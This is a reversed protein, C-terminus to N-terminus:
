QFLAAAQERVWECTIGAAGGDASAGGDVAQPAGAIRVMVFSSNCLTPDAGTTGMGYLQRLTAPDSELVNQQAVFRLDGEVRDASVAIANATTTQTQVACLTGALSLGNLAVTIGPKGDQDQDVVRPDAAATPLCATAASPAAGIVETAADLHFIPYGQPGVAFTGTRHVPTETHAWIQPIVVPAVAGPENVQMRDCNRGNVVIATGTQTIDVLMTLVYVNRMVGVIPANVIQAAGVRAVWTGSLDTVSAVASKGPCVPAAVSDDVVPVGCDVATPLDALAADLGGDPSAAGDGGDGCAVLLALGSALLALRHRTAAPTERKM